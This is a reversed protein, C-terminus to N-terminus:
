PKFNGIPGKVKALPEVTVLNMTELLPVEFWTTLKLLLPLTTPMLPLRPPLCAPSPCSSDFNDHPTKKDKKEWFSAFIKM